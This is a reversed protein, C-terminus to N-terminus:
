NKSVKLLINNKKGDYVEFIMDKNPLRPAKYVQLYDLRSNRIDSGTLIPEKVVEGTQDDITYSTLYLFEKQHDFYKTPFEAFSRKLNTFNDIYFLYYKGNDRFSNYSMSSKGRGGFQYKPLKHFWSTTGSETIKASIIDRYYYKYTTRSGSSSSTTFSEVYRQEGLVIFSGDTNYYVKNVRIDEFDKKDKKNQTGENIRSERETAYQQLTAVPMDSTIVTGVTGSDELRASFVGAIEDKASDQSYYGTVRMKGTAGLGIVADTISKGPITIASQILEKPDEKIKYVETTYSDKLKDKESSADFISATMYFDGNNDIAFDENLMRNTAYPLTVKRRWIPELNQDYVSIGIKDPKDNATKIRFIVLVKSNDPSKKFAFKNIRGGADHGYTSKFGFDNTINEKDSGVLIPKEAIIGSISIRQAYAKDKVTYFVIARNGLNMVTQFDGKDEIIQRKKIDEKLDELSFRQITMNNRGKKIAAMRNGSAIYYTQLSKIRKYKEGISFEFAESLVPKQAQVQFLTMCLLLLTCTITPKSNRGIMKKNKPNPASRSIMILVHLM